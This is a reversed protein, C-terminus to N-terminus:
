RRFVLIRFILMLIDLILNSGKGGFVPKGEITDLDIPTSLFKGLKIISHSNKDTGYESLIQKIDEELKKDALSKEKPKQIEQRVEQFKTFDGRNLWIGGCSPCRELIIGKPFYQDKYQYLESQDKPCRFIDKEIISHDWLSKADLVDIKRAEGHKASFLEMEDFWIGGCVKCQDVIIPQGYHSEINVQAMEINENPCKM